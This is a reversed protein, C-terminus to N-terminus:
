NIVDYCSIRLQSEIQCNRHSVMHVIRRPIQGVCESAAGGDKLARVGHLGLLLLQLHVENLAGRSSLELLSLSFEQVSVVRASSDM